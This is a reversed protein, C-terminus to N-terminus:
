RWWSGIGDWIRNLRDAIDYREPDSNYAAADHLEKMADFGGLFHATEGVSKIQELYIEKERENKNKDAAIYKDVLNILFTAQKGM